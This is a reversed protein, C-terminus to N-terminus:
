VAHPPPLSCRELRPRANEAGCILGPTCLAGMSARPASTPHPATGTTPVCMNSQLGSLPCLAGVLGGLPADKKVSNFLFPCEKTPETDFSPRTSARKAATSARYSRRLPHASSSKLPSPLPTTCELLHHWGYDSTDPWRVASHAPHRPDPEVVRGELHRTSRRLSNRFAVLFLGPIGGEHVGFKM